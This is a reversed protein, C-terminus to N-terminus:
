AARSRRRRNTSVPRRHRVLRLVVAGGLFAGVGVVGWGWMPIRAYHRQWWALNLEARARAVKDMLGQLDVLMQSIDKQHALIWQSSAVAAALQERLAALHVRASNQAMQMAICRVFDAGIRGAANGTFPAANKLAAARLAAPFEREALPALQMVRQAQEISGTVTKKLQEIANNVAYLMNDAKVPDIKGSQDLVQIVQDKLRIFGGSNILAYTEQARQAAILAPAALRQIEGGVFTPALVTGGAIVLALVLMSMTAQYAAALLALDDTGKAVVGVCEQGITVGVSSAVPRVISKLWNRLNVERDAGASLPTRLKFAVWFVGKRTEMAQPSTEPIFGVAFWSFNPQVNSRLKSVLAQILAPGADPRNTMTQVAASAAGVVATAVASIDPAQKPTLPLFANLLADIKDGGTWKVSPFVYVYPVDVQPIIPVYQTRSLDAEILACEPPVGIDIATSTSTSSSTSPGLASRVSSATTALLSTPVQALASSYSM